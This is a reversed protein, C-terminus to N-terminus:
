DYLASELEAFKQPGVAVRIQAALQRLKDLDGATEVALNLRFGRLGLESTLRIAIPYARSYHARADALAANANLPAAAAPANPPVARAASAASAASNASAALTSGAAADAPAVPALLGLGVMHAVDDPHVGLGETAKIVDQVSRKGDFLIFATRQRPSLTLSRTQLAAQGQATKVYIM